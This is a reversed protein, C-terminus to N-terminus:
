LRNCLFPSETNWSKQDSNTATHLWHFSYSHRLFSGDEVAWDTLVYKQTWPSWMSTNANMAALQTPDNCITGDANLNTWRKEEAMVDIM